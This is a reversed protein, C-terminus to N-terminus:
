VPQARTGLRPILMAIAGVSWISMIVLLVTSVFPVPIYGVAAILLVGLTMALLTYGRSGDNWRDPLIWRGIALGAVVQALFLAAIWFGLLLVGIPLTVVAVAAAIGLAPLVVILPLGVAFAPLLDTANRGIAAMVRPILVILLAGTLLGWLTLMPRNFTPGAGPEEWPAVSSREIVGDVTPSGTQTLQGVSAYLVDGGVEASSLLRIRPSELQVDGAVTGGIVTNVTTGRYDGEVTGRLDVSGGAVIVDGGITSASQINLQGGAMIVDGAVSGTLTVNGGLVRLSGDVDGLIETDGAMTQLSGAVNGHITSTAALITLDGSADGELEFSFASVYANDTFEDVQMSGGARFEAGMAQLPLLVTAFLLVLTLAALGM